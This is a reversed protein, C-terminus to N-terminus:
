RGPAARAPLLGGCSVWPFPVAALRITSTRLAIEPLHRNSTPATRPTIPRLSTTSHPIRGTGITNASGTASSSGPRPWHGFSTSAPANTASAATSVIRRLRQAVTRLAPHLVTWYPHGGVRGDGHVGARARQRLAACLPMCTRRCCSRARRDADRRYHIERRWRYYTQESVQLERCVDAIDKGVALMRDAQTLKRVVQEPTHRKRPAM